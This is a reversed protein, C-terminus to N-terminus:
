AASTPPLRPTTRWSEARGCIVFEAAGEDDMAVNHLRQWLERSRPKRALAVKKRFYAPVDEQRTVKEIYIGGKEPPRGYVEYAADILKEAIADSPDTM